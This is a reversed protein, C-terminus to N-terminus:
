KEDENQYFRCESIEAAECGAYFACEEWIKCSECLCGRCMRKRREGTEFNLKQYVFFSNLSKGLDSLM